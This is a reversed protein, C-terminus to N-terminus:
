IQVGCQSCEFNEGDSTLRLKASHCVSRGRLLTGLGNIGQPVATLPSGVTGPLDFGSRIFRVRRESSPRLHVRISVAVFEVEAGFESEERETHTKIASVVLRFADVIQSFDFMVAVDKKHDSSDGRPCSLHAHNGLEDVVDVHRPDIEQGCAKCIIRVKYYARRQKQRQRWAVTMLAVVLLLFGTLVYDM